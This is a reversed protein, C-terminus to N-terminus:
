AEVLPFGDSPKWFLKKVQENKIHANFAKITLAALVTMKAPRFIHEEECIWRYLVYSPSQPDPSCEDSWISALEAFFAEGDDVLAVEMILLAAFGIAASKRGLKQTVEFAPFIVEGHNKGHLAVSRETYQRTTLIFKSRQEEDTELWAKHQKAIASFLPAKPLGQLSMLDTVSRPKGTDITGFAAEDEIGKIIVTQFAKGTNVCANLRHQGDLLRGSKSFAITEGNLMWEDNKLATSLMKVHATKLPRNDHNTSALLHKALEPTIEAVGTQISSTIFEITDMKIVRHTQQQESQVQAYRLSKYETALPLATPSNQRIKPKYYV